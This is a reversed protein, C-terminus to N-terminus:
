LIEAFFPVQCTVSGPGMVKCTHSSLNLTEPSTLFIDLESCLVRVVRIHSSTKAQNNIM